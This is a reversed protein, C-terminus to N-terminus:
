KLHVKTQPRIREPDVAPEICNVPKDTLTRLHEAVDQNVAVISDGQLALRFGEVDAMSGHHVTILRKPRPLEAWDINWSIVTDSQMALSVIAEIGQGTPVGLPVPDGNMPNRCAFGIVNALRPVLTQHFTETGGMSEYNISVVGIRHGEVQKWRLWKAKYQEWTWRERNPHVRANVKCHAEFTWRDWDDYRPPNDSLLKAFENKCSCGWSPLKAAFALLKEETPDRMCHLEAWLAAYNPPKPSFPSGVLLPKVILGTNPQVHVCKCAWKPDANPFLSGTCVNCFM